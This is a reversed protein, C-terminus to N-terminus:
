SNFDRVWTMWPSPSQTIREMGGRCCMLERWKRGTTRPLGHRYNLLASFLPASGPIGSCRRAVALSAQEHKLLAVLEHQAQEVLQKATVNKLQLRLPLTNIFMGLTRHAGVGEHLRGMLVSGFVVDTRGSTHAIVLGWAAHFLTAASVSLRRAQLRIKRSLELDVAQSAEAIGSGDGHVDVLGFPATSEDIQALRGRFFEEPDNARSCALAYAVHDRYPSSTPLTEGCGALHCAIEKFIIEQSTNDSV